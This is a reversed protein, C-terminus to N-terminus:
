FNCKRSKPHQPFHASKTRESSTLIGGFMMLLPVVNSCNTLARLMALRARSVLSARKKSRKYSTNFSHKTHIKLDCWLHFVKIVGKIIRNCLYQSNGVFIVQVTGFPLSSVGQSYHASGCTKRGLQIHTMHDFDFQVQHAFIHTPPFNCTRASCELQHLLLHSPFTSLMWEFLFLSAVWSGM